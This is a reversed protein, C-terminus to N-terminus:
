LTFCLLSRDSRYCRENTTEGAVYAVDKGRLRYAAEVQEERTVTESAALTRVAIPVRGAFPTNRIM